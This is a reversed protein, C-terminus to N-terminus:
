LETLQLLPYYPVADGPKIPLTDPEIFALADAWALSSLVGSSQNPHQVLGEAQLQVRLFEPRTHRGEIGFTAPAHLASMDTEKGTRGYLGNIFSKVFLVATVFSSVPNGPLGIVPTEGGKGDAISGFALPKGPKMCIKWWDLKGLAAVAAKVHDEDGVSVGGSTIILDVKGAAGELAAKTKGLDDSVRIQQTITCGWNALLASLVTANSNYIQGSQLATGPEVLESGTNILAVRPARLVRVQSHGGAALLGLKAAHLIEGAQALVHGCSFDQGRPRINGGDSPSQQILIHSGQAECHEQIAVTNAGPPINAGTFIRAATGPELQQPATGASIAQSVRLRWPPAESPRLFAYGDMASNDAPPSDVQACYDEALVRKFAQQLPRCEYERIPNASQIIQQRAQAITLMAPDNM